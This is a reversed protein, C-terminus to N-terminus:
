DPTFAEIVDNDQTFTMESLDRLGIAVIIVIASSVQGKLLVARFRTRNMQRIRTLDYSEWLDAAQMMAVFPESGLRQLVKEKVGRARPLPHEAYQRGNDGM